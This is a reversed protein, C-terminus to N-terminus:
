SLAHKVKHLEAVNREGADRGINRVVQQQQNHKEENYIFIILVGVLDISNLHNM